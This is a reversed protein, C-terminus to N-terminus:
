FLQDSVRLIGVGQAAGLGQEPKIISFGCFIDSVQEVHTTRNNIFPDLLKLLAALKVETCPNRIAQATTAGAGHQRHNIRQNLRHDVPVWLLQTIARRHPGGRQQHMVEFFHM